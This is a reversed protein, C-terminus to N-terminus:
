LKCYEKIMIKEDKNILFFWVGPLYFSAFSLCYTILKVWSNLDIYSAIAWSTMTVLVGVLVIPFLEATFTTPIRGIIKAAYFPTFLLNRLILIIGGAVAVGYMGWGIPGALFVALALNLVGIAIQFLGPIRVNNTAISINHLPMFGLTLALHATMVLLLPALPVFNPGLWVCLLPKALGSILGVPLALFLGLFKVSQKCSTVMSDIENRAFHYIITPALVGAIATGLGRLLASWQLLSAYYGTSESGLLRNVVLLDISLLLITGIQSVAIWGGTGVLEKLTKISFQRFDIYLEPTLKKWAWLSGLLSLLSAVLIGLGVHWIEAHGFNFLFVVISVRMISAFIAVANRIDFRNRCFTAVDFPTSIVTLMFMALTCLLLLTTQYEQGQPFRFFWQPHFALFFCPAAIVAVFLLSSILSTNFFFRAEQFFKKELNVTIFRGVAANLVLTLVSLYSVVTTALPIIGYGSVGLHRILYPTFWINILISFAYFIINSIINVHLQGRIM